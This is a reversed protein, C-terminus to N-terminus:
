FGQMKSLDVVGEPIETIRQLLALRNARLEPDEAMVLVQDFFTNIPEILHQLARMVNDVDRGDELYALAEQYAQYLRKSAPEQLREPHLEHRETGRVIRATRSYATLLADWDDRAVWRSLKEVAQTARYPNNGQAALVAEVVDFPYDAELLVGQLRRRLFDLLAQKHEDTVSIPMEEAVRDVAEALDLDIRQEILIQDLGIAARRLAYPDAAGTPQLGAAFLGVLSDLRDAIGVVAGPMSAPLADGAGRPLYHEFIAQAVAESEGSLRAYERGMIGQLSTFDIVMQTVLDSKCLAATREAVAREEASLGLHEALWPVLRKLREVKDLMSGLKEQFMLGKLAPTFEELPKQTDNEWFFEADAFRARIVEAYGERVTDADVVNSNAVGIFYPLLKEGDREVIPFFRQHKRMVTILVDRPLKLYGPDFSGRIAFPQEVLNTVEALLDPDDPVRGGVEEALKDISRRIQEQREERDVVIGAERIVDFYAEAKEIEIAPSRLPRLGHTTRSSRVGAYRFPVVTDGLLAVIWRIPRSFAVNTENWRMSRAFSLGAILEPLHQSLVDVTPQGPQRRIATVRRRGDFEEITLDEVAVGASRAFGIAAATPKGEADFAQEAPPGKVLEEIDRQRPAVERVAVVLRRPTGAIRIEGHDLRAEELMKPVAEHLQELAADVDQAPLEETGIELILDRPETPHEVAEELPEEERKPYLRMLPFGLEERQKVFGEAVARALERMRAFYRARETVGIVGRADLINFTHSCKLVYDHAPMILGHELAVKAEAEYEDYLRILREVTAYDLNYKSFEVESMYLVDGYPIEETWMIDRFHRAGQLAMAIRELGYTLEVCVPDLNIGGAQQFYTYQTIELGDLWVEWGLGWAGLAPSEWNDEVFRIDHKTRDIGLAELSGLYLEQPDGPDPKLIVQYQIHQQFRNPNEGYRSDAPRISPEIYAVNWPEPGLVRLVTAPNMTGAGVETHYPQWLLCGHETWYANLRQIMDQFTLIKESM